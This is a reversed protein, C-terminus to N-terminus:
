LSSKERLFILKKNNKEIRWQRSFTIIKKNSNKIWDLLREVQVFSRKEPMIELLIRYKIIDNYLIFRKLDLLITDKNPSFRVSKKIANNTISGMYENEKSMIQSFNYLHEVFGANYQELLPIVQSRIRNRTYEFSKNSLDICFKLKQKHLYSMVERRTISLM